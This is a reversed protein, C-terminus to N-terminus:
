RKSKNILVLTVAASIILYVVTALLYPMLPKMNEASYILETAIYFPTPLLLWINVSYFKRRMDRLLVRDTGRPHFVELCVCGLIGLILGLIVPRHTRYERWGFFSVILGGFILITSVLFVIKITQYDTLKGISNDIDDKLLYDTSVSFLESILLIKDIDPMSQGTEWRSITHRSVSLKEAMQEQSLEHHKRIHQIKEAYTM